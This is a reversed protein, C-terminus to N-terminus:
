LTQQPQSRFYGCSLWGLREHVRVHQAIIQDQLLEHRARWHSASARRYAVHVAYSLKRNLLCSQVPLHRLWPFIHRGGGLPSEFHRWLRLDLEGQPM